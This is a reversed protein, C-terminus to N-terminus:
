DEDKRELPIIDTTDDNEGRHFIYASGSKRKLCAARFVDSPYSGDRRYRWAFYGIILLFLIAIVVCIVVGAINVDSSKRTAVIALSSISCGIYM